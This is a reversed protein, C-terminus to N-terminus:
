GRRAIVNIWRGKRERHSVVRISLVEWGARHLARALEDKKWRAFYRGPMWGGQKVRSRWGHTVTAALLGNPCVADRLRALVQRAVPKSLHMLSAAAWIGDLVGPRIPLARMDALVLPLVPVRGNAFRLLSMTRDLGIVRYGLTKLYRADQGAGCGLDLLLAKRSLLTTWECLLSPRKYRKRGWQALFAEVDREYVLLTQAM